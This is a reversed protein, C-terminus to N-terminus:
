ICAQRIFHIIWHIVMYRPRDTQRMIFIAHLFKLAGACHAAILAQADFHHRHRVHCISIRKHFRVIEGPTKPIWIIAINIRRLQCLRQSFAGTLHPSFNLAEARRSTNSLNSIFPKNVGIIAVYAAFFNHITCAIICLSNTFPKFWVSAAGYRHRDHAM